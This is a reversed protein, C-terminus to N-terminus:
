LNIKNKFNDYIAQKMDYYSLQINYNLGYHDCIYKLEQMATLEFLSVLMWNPSFKLANLFNFKKLMVTHELPMHDTYYQCQRVIDENFTTFLKMFVRSWPHELSKLYVKTLSLAEQAYTLCPSAITSILHLTVIPNNIKGLKSYIANFSGYISAYLVV